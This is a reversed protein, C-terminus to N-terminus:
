SLRVFMVTFRSVTYIQLMNGVYPWIKLTLLSIFRSLVRTDPSVCALLSFGSRTRRTGLGILRLTKSAVYRSRAGEHVSLVPKFM